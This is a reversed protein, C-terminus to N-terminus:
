HGGLMLMRPDYSLLVGREADDVPALADVDDPVRVEFPTAAVVDRVVDPLDRVVPCVVGRLIWGDSSRELHARETVISAINPGPSTIFDVDAVLRGRRHPVLVVNRRCCTAIDNAGGSGTIWGSATRSSNINGRQDVQGGALIGLGSRGQGQVLNGLIGETDTLAAVSALNPFNFLFPNGQSPRYDYLGVESILPPFSQHLDRALWAALSSVGIGTLVFGPADDGDVIDSVVRAAISAMTMEDTTPTAPAKLAAATVSWDRLRARTDSDVQALLRQDIWTALESDTLRHAETSETIFDYDDSYALHRFPPPAFVGSPHAGFPEPCVARVLAGPLTTVGAARSLVDREVIEEVTVIAGHRASAAGLVGEGVPVSLVVNGDADGVVGHLFTLDPRWASVLSVDAEHRVAESGAQLDSGRLSNTVAWESGSAAARLRQIFSLLSWADVDVAGDDILKKARPNPGVRPFQDGVFGTVVKDVLGLVLLYIGLQPGGFGTASATFAPTSGRYQRVLERIAANPRAQALSFHLAMGPRVHEAVAAEISRVKGSRGSM